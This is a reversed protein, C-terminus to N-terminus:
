VQDRAVDEIVRVTVGVTGEASYRMSEVLAVQSRLGIEADRVLVVSGPEVAALMTQDCDYSVTRSPLAYRRALWGLVAGATATQQIVDSSLDIPRTGYRARSVRCIPLVSADGDVDSRFLM